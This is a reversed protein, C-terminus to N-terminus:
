GKRKFKAKHKMISAAKKKAIVAKMEEDLDDMGQVPQKASSSPMEMEDSEMDGVEGGDAMRKPQPQPKPKGAGPYGIAQGLTQDDDDVEGGEAFGIDAADLAHEESGSMDKDPDDIEEDLGTDHENEEVMGGEAMAQSAAAHSAKKQAIYQARQPGPPYGSNAEEDASPWYQKLEDPASAPANSVPAAEDESDDDVEGGEAMKKAYKRQQALSAAIAQKQPYGSAMMEKINKGVAAKSGSKMLPM